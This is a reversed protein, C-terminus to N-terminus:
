AHPHRNEAHPRRGRGGRVVPRKPAVHERRVFRNPRVDPNRRLYGIVSTGAELWPSRERIPAAAIPESVTVSM